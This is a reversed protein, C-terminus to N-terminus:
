PKVLMAATVCVAALAAGLLAYIGLEWTLGRRRLHLPMNVRAGTRM